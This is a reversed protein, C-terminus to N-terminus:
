RKLPEALAQFVCLCISGFLWQVSCLDGSSNSFPKFSSFHNAAGYSSCCGVLGRSTRLCYVQLWFTCMSSGMAGMVYTASSTRIPYWQASLGKIRQLSSTGTYFFVPSPFLSHTSSHLFVRMSDPSPPIPYPKKSPFDPFPIVSSIYIFFTDLLLKLFAFYLEEGRKPKHVCQLIFIFWWKMNYLM